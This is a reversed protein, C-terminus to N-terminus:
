GLDDEFELDELEELDQESMEPEELLLDAGIVGDPAWCDLAKSAPFDRPACLLAFDQEFRWVSPHDGTLSEVDPSQVLPLQIETELAEKMEELTEEEEASSVESSDGGLTPVVEEHVLLLAAGAGVLCLLLFAIIRGVGAKKALPMTILGALLVFAAALILIM